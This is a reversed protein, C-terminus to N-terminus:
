AEAKAQEAMITKVLDFAQEESFGVSTLARYAAWAAEAAPLMDALLSKPM